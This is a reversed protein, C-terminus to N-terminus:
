TKLSTEAQTQAQVQPLTAPAHSKSKQLFTNSRTKGHQVGM